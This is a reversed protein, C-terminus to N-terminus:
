GLLQHFYKSFITSKPPGNKVHVDNEKELIKMLVRDFIHNIDRKFSITIYKLLM